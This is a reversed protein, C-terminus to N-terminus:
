GYLLGVGTAVLLLRQLCWFAAMSGVLYAPLVPRGAFVPQAHLRWLPWACVAVVAIQALEIGVNFAFLAPVIRGAPLGVGLLAGAFGLGHLLGFAFAMLAPRRGMISPRRALLERAGIVISLAIGAEMLMPNVAVLQLAALALTLSHGLTFATLTALLRRPTRVLLMLVILFLVHDAGLLLHEFGMGLYRRMLRLTSPQSPIIFTPETADVLGQVASGDLPEVRIVATIGSPGLGTVSLSDGPRLSHGCAVTWRVNYANRANVSIRRQTVPECRSPLVAHPNAAVPQTRSLRFLVQYKGPEVETLQLLAPALPHAAAPVAMLCLSFVLALRRLGSM